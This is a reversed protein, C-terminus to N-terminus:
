TIYTARVPVSLQTTAQSPHQLQPYHHNSSSSGGGAMYPAVAGAAPPQQQHHNPHDEEAAVAMNDLGIEVILARLQRNLDEVRMGRLMEIPISPKLTLVLAFLEDRILPRGERALCEHIRRLVAEGSARPAQPPTSHTTWAQVVVVSREQSTPGRHGAASDTSASARAPAPAPAPVPSSTQHTNPRPQPHNSPTIATM